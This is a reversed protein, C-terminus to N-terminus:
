VQRNWAVAVRELLPHVARVVNMFLSVGTGVVLPDDSRDCLGAFTRGVSHASGLKTTPEGLARQYRTLRDTLLDNVDLTCLRKGLRRIFSELIVDRSAAVNRDQHRTVVLHVAAALLLRAERLFRQRDIDYSASIATCDCLAESNAVFDDFLQRGCRGLEYKRIISSLM